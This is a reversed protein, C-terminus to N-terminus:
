QLSCVSNSKKATSKTLVTYNTQWRPFRLTDYLIKINGCGGEAMERVKNTSYIQLRWQTDSNVYRVDYYPQSFLLNIRKNDHPGLRYVLRDEKDSSLIAPLRTLEPVTTVQGAWPDVAFITGSTGEVLMFLHHGTDGVTETLFAAKFMPTVGPHAIKYNMMNFYFAILALRTFDYCQGIKNQWALLYRKAFNESDFRDDIIDQAKWACEYADNTFPESELINELYEAAENRDLQKGLNVEHSIIQKSIKRTYSSDKLFHDIIPHLIAQNLEAEEENAGAFCM